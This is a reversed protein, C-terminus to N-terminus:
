GNEALIFSGVLQDSKSCPNISCRLIVQALLPSCVASLCSLSTRGFSKPPSCRTTEPCRSASSTAYSPATSRSASFFSLRCTASRRSSFRPFQAKRFRAPRTRWIEPDTAERWSELARRSSYEQIFIILKIM